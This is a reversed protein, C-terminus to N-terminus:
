RRRGPDKVAGLTRPAMSGRRFRQPKKNGRGQVKAEFQRRRAQERRVDLGFLPEVIEMWGVGMLFPLAVALWEWNAFPQLGGLKLTLLVIGLLIFIM